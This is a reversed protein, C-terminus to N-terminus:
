HCVIRGLFCLVDWTVVPDHNLRTALHTWGLLHATVAMLGSEYLGWAIPIGLAAVIEFLVTIPRAGEQESEFVVGPYPEDRVIRKPKTLMYRLTAGAGAGLRDPRPDM